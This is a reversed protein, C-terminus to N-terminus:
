NATRRPNKGRHLDFTRPASVDWLSANMTLTPRGLGVDRDGGCHRVVRGQDVDVYLVGRLGGDFDVLDSADLRALPEGGGLAHVRDLLTGLRSARMLVASAPLWVGVSVGLSVDPGLVPLVSM